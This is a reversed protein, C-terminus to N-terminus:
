ARPWLLKENQTPQFHCNVFFPAIGIVNQEFPTTPCCLNNYNQFGSPDLGSDSYSM